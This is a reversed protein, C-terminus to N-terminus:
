RRIRQRPRVMDKKMCPTKVEFSRPKATPYFRVWSATQVAETREPFEVLRVNERAVNFERGAHNDKKKATFGSPSERTVTQDSPFIDWSEIASTDITGAVACVSVSALLVSFIKKM